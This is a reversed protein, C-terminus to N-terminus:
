TVWAFDPKWSKRYIPKHNIWLVALAGAYFEHPVWRPIDFFMWPWIDLEGWWQLLLKWEWELVLFRGDAEEHTHLTNPFHDSLRFYIIDYEPDEIADKLSPNHIYHWLYFWEFEEYLCEKLGLHSTCELVYWLEFVYNLNLCDFRQWCEYLQWEDIVLDRGKYYVENLTAINISMEIVVCYLDRYSFTYM